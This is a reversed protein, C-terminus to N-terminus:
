RSGPTAVGPLMRAFTGGANVLTHLAMPMLLSGSRERLWGYVLGTGLTRGFAGANFALSWGHALSVADGPNRGVSLGHNLAFALATLPVAWGCAAGWVNKRGAFARNLLGLLLGRMMLEEALTPMLAQFALTETSWPTPGGLRLALAVQTGALLLVALLCGRLSGPRQRLTLGFEARTWGARLLFGIAALSLVLSAIKGQWNWSTGPILSHLETHGTAVQDLVLLGLAWGVLAWRRPPSRRAVLVVVPLLALAPALGRALLLPLTM